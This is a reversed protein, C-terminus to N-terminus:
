RWSRVTRNSQYVEGDAVAIWTNTAFRDSLTDVLTGDDTALIDLEPERDVPKRLAYLHNEDVATPVFVKASDGLTTEWQVSGDTRDLAFLNPGRYRNERVSQRQEEPIAGAGNAFGLALYVHDSDVTVTTAGGLSMPNNTEDRDYQYSWRESGDALDFARVHRAPPTRGDETEGGYATRGRDGEVVYVTEETVTPLSRAHGIETTWRHSGDSRDFVTIQSWEPGEDNQVASVTGENVVALVDDGVVPASTIHTNYYPETRYQISGDATSLAIARFDPDFLYLTGDDVVPATKTALGELVALEEVSSGDRAVKTVHLSFSESREDLHVIYLANPGLTATPEGIALPGTGEGGEVTTVTQRWLQSGDERSIAYAFLEFVPPSSDYPDASEAVTYVADEDVVPAGQWGISTAGRLKEYRSGEPTADFAHEEPPSAESGNYGTAGATGRPQQWGDSSPASDGEDTSNRDLAM